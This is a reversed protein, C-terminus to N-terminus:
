IVKVPAAICAAGTEGSGDPGDQIGAVMQPKLINPTIFILVEEM